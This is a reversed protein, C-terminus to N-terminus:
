LSINIDPANLSISQASQVSVPKDSLVVVREQSQITIGGSPVMNFKNTKGGISQTISVSGTSIEINFEVNDNGEDLKSSDKQLRIRFNGDDDIEIFTGNKGNSSRSVRFTSKIGNVLVKFFGKSSNKISALINLPNSHNAKKVTGENVLEMNEYEMDETISEQTGVLFAGSHHVLEFGGDKDYMMYDQLMGMWISRYQNNTLVNKTDDISHFCGLIVPQSKYNNIFGILVYNGPQIATVKGYTLGTDKNYGACSEMIRCAYKGNNFNASTLSGYQNNMIEVDATHNEPYVRIVKGYFLMGGMTQDTRKETQIRGLNSQSRIPM